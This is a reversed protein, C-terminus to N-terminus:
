NVLCQVMVNGAIVALGHIAKARGQILFADHGHSIVTTVKCGETLGGGTWGCLCLDLGVCGLTQRRLLQTVKDGTHDALLGYELCLCRRTRTAHSDMHTRRHLIKM